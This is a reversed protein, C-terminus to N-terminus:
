QYITNIGEKSQKKILGDNQPSPTNKKLHKQTYYYYLFWYYYICDLCHEIQLM